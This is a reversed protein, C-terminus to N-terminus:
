SLSIAPINKRTTSTTAPSFGAATSSAISSTILENILFPGLAFNSLASFVFYVPYMQSPYGRVNSVIINYLGYLIGSFIPLAIIGILGHWWFGSKFWVVAFVMISQFLYFNNISKERM